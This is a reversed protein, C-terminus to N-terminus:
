VYVVHFARTRVLLPDLILNLINVNPPPSTVNQRLSKGPKQVMGFQVRVTRKTREKEDNRSVMYQFQFGSKLACNKGNKRAIDTM